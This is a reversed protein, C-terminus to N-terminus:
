ASKILEGVIKSGCWKWQPLVSNALPSPHHLKFALVFSKRKKRLASSLIGATPWKAALSSVV